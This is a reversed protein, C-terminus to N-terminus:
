QEIAFCDGELIDVIDIAFQKPIHLILAAAGKLAATVMIPFRGDRLSSRLKSRCRDLYDNVLRRKKVEDAYQGYIEDVSIGHEYCFCISREFALCAGKASELKKFNVQLTRRHLDLAKAMARKSRFHERLMTELFYAVFGRGM